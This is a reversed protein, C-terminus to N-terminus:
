VMHSLACDANSIMVLQQTPFFINILSAWVRSQFDLGHERLVVHIQGKLLSPVCLDMM